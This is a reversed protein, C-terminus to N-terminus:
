RDRYFCIPIGFAPMPKGTENTNPNRVSANVRTVVSFEPDPFNLPNAPKGYSSVEDHTAATNQLHSLSSDM